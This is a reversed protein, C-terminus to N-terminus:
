ALSGLAELRALWEAFHPCRERLRAIGIKEAVLPGASAKRGEYEPIVRIIRRSPATEPGDDILEPPTSQALEQLGAIAADHDLFAWDLTRPEALLLAEFEHLQLYPIFRPHAVDAALAAELAAVRAYPDGGPASSQGPFDAPLRYLDLMTTFWADEGRDERMWRNLDDRAHAYSLHGGRHIERPLQRGERFRGGSRGTEVCRAVAFVGRAGLHPALVDRAFREETQGEAVINLRAM